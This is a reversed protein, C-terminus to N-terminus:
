QTSIKPISNIYMQNALPNKDQSDFVKILGMQASKLMIGTQPLGQINNLVAKLLTENQDGFAMLNVFDEELQVDPILGLIFDPDSRSNTYKLIIPQIAWNNKPNVVGNADTDKITISGVYKGVTTDGVQVVQMYPRLGNILLESASATNSSTIVYIRSLNLTIIPTAPTIMTKGDAAYTAAINDKFNQNFIAAGYRNGLETQVIPNYQSKTFLSSTSTSYIMSALYNATQVYGGGNYRLDLILKDVAAEKFKKFVQNLQLDFAANFANYVLYGIKSNGVTLVTDLQIPNQQMTVATMTSSKGNLGIKYGSIKDGTISAFSLKYTINTYLLTQYNTLTLQQDNVKMFLDGRKMGAKEAPSGKFVYRVYGFIDGSTGIRVLRFDYGMTESIGQVWDDITKSNDVLFSWKDVKKYQYLLDTFLKQPDNYSNLLANLSDKIAYKLATFAPVKEEWLYYVQMNEYIFRNVISTDPIVKPVVPPALSVNDKKCNALFVIFILIFSLRFLYNQKNKM